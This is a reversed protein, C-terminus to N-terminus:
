RKQAPIAVFVNRAASRWVVELHNNQLTQSDTKLLVYADHNQLQPTEGLQTAVPELARLRGGARYFELAPQFLWHSSVRRFGGRELFDVMARNDREDYWAWVFRPDMTIAFQLVLMGFVLAIPIGLTRLRAGAAALTLFFVFVLGLGTRESPYPSHLWVHALWYGGLVCYLIGGLLTVHRHRGSLFWALLVLGLAVAAVPLFRRAFRARMREGGFPGLHEPDHLLFADTTTEASSRVTTAGFYFSGGEARSLPLMLVYSCVVLAPWVAAWGERWRGRQAALVCGAIITALAVYGFTLNSSVSLGLALSMWLLHRREQTDSYAFLRDLAWAFFGLALSYGRALCLLDLTLPNCALVFLALLQQWVAAPLLRRVLGPLVWLFLFAGALAPLRLALESVGFVRTTLAALASHLVHNNADFGSLFVGAFGGSAFRNYTFAEDITISLHAARWASLFFIALALLRVL